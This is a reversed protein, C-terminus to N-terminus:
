KICKGLLREGSSVLAFARTLIVRDRYDSLRIAGPRALLMSTRSMTARVCVLRRVRPLIPTTLPKMGLSELPSICLHDLVVWLGGARGGTIQAEREFIELFRANPHSLSAVPGLVIDEERAVGVSMKVKDQGPRYPEVLDIAVILLGRDGEELITIGESLQAELFPRPLGDEGM